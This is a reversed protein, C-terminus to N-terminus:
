FCTLTLYVMGCSRGPHGCGEGSDILEAEVRTFEKTTTRPTAAGNALPTAMGNALSTM